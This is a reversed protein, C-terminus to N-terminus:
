RGLLLAELYAIRQKSHATREPQRAVAALRYLELAQSPRHLAEHAMAATTVRAGDWEAAWSRINRQRTRRLLELVRNALGISLLARLTLHHEDSLYEQRALYPILYERAARRLGGAKGTEHVFSMLRALLSGSPRELGEVLPILSVALEPRAAVEKLGLSMNLSLENLPYPALARELEAPFRDPEIEALSKRFDSGDAFAGFQGAVDTPGDDYWDPAVLKAVEGQAVPITGLRESLRTVFEKVMDAFGLERDHCYVHFTLLGGQETLALLCRGIVQGSELRAYLVQKNVDAANAIASFFNFDGPSLCTQFHGGMRFVELPDDELALWLTRGGAERELTGIGDLWASMRIGRREMQKIFARNAQEERLDWPRPGLRARLLRFALDRFRPELALLFPLVDAAPGDGLPAVLRSDGSLKEVEQHFLRTLRDEWESIRRESVKERLKQELREARRKSLRPKERLRRGLNDLRTRLREDPGAKLRKKLVTIESRLAQPDPITRSLIRAAVQEAQPEVSSLRRLESHFRPPYRRHWSKERGKGVRRRARLPDRGGVAGLAKLLAFWRLVRRPRGHLIERAALKLVQPPIKTSGEEFWALMPYWQGGEGEKVFFRVFELFSDMAGASLAHAARGWTYPGEALAAHLDAKKLAIQLRAATDANRTQKVFDWLLEGQESDFWRERAATAALVAALATYFRPILACQGHGEIDGEFSMWVDNRPWEDLVENWPGLLGFRFSQAKLFSRFQRVLTVQFDAPLGIWHSLFAARVRLRGHISPLLPLTKVVEDFLKKAAPAAYKKVVEIENGAHVPPPWRSELSRFRRLLQRLRAATHPERQLRELVSRASATLREMRDWWSEWRDLLNPHLALSFLRMAHRRADRNSAYAWKAFEVLNKGLDPEVTGPWHPSQQSLRGSLRKELAAEFAKTYGHNAALPLAFSRRDALLNMLSDCRGPGDAQALRALLLALLLGEQGAVNGLVAAVKAARPALWRLSKRLADPDLLHIWLLADILPVLDPQESGLSKVAKSIGARPLAALLEDTSPLVAGRHVPGKLFELLGNVRELWELRDGFLANTVRPFDRVVTRAAGSASRIEEGGLEIRSFGGEEGAPPVFVWTVRGGTARRGVPFGPVFGMKARLITRARARSASKSKAYPRHPRM